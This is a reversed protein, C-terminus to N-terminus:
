ERVFIAEISEIQNALSEVPESVSHLFYGLKTLLQFVPNTDPATPNFNQRALRVAVIQCLAIVKRGGTWVELHDDPLDVVLMDILGVDPRELLSDLRHPPLFTELNVASFNNRGTCDKALAEFYEAPALLHYNRGPFVEDLARARVAPQLAAIVVNGIRYRAFILHYNIVSERAISSLNAWAPPPFHLEIYRGVPANIWGSDVKRTPVPKARSVGAAKALRAIIKKFPRAFAESIRFNGFAVRWLRVKEALPLGSSAIVRLLGCQIDRAADVKRKLPLNINKRELHWYSDPRKRQSRGVFPLAVIRGLCALRALFLFELGALIIQDDFRRPEIRVQLLVERRFLGSIALYINSSRIQFFGHRAAPWPKDPYIDELLQEKIPFGAIDIVAVGPACCITEPNAELFPVLQSICQPNSLLDDHSLWTFYKGTAAKVARFFNEPAIVLQDFSEYRIRRDRAAYEECIKATGDTSANNILVFELNWYDQALASDLAQRLFKEGNHVPLGISVLPLRDGM